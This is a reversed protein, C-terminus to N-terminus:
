KLSEQAKTQVEAEILAKKTCQPQFKAEESKTTPDHKQLSM